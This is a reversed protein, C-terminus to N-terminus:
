ESVIHVEYSHNGYEKQLNSLFRAFQGTDKIIRVRFVPRTSPRFPSEPYVRLTEMDLYDIDNTDFKMM